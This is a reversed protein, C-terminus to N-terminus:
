MYKLMETATPAEKHTPALQLFKTLLEKAKPTEGARFCLMGLQFLADAYNPDAQLAQELLPRAKADDGKNLHLVAENFYISPDTPNAAKYAAEYKAIATKDGAIRSANLALGLCAPFDPSAELCKEADALSTKPNNAELELKGLELWSVHLDPMAKVAAELKARAEVKKGAALLEIGERQEKLGPQDMQAKQAADQIEKVSTLVCELELTQGGIKPKNSQKMPQYGPAEYLFDYMKTGDGIITAFDGKADTVLERKYNSIEPCTITIKVGAIPKKTTDLVRGKIRGQAQALLVTPALLLVAAIFRALKM